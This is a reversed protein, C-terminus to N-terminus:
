SLFQYHLFIIFNSHSHTSNTTYNILKSLILYYPSILHPFKLKVTLKIKLIKFFNNLNQYIKEMIQM